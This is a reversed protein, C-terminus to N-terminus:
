ARCDNGEYSWSKITGTSSVLFRTMCQMGINQVPTRVTEYTTTSGSYSAIGGTGTVTGTSYTTKPITRTYGGIQVNRARAYQILTDGNTLQHSTNPPGWSTVLQDVHSGVWSSLIKEYGATSTCASLALVMALTAIIAKMPERGWFIPQGYSSLVAKM